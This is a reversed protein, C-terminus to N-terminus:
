DENPKMIFIAPSPDDIDQCTCISKLTVLRHLRDSESVKENAEWNGADLMRCFFQFSMTAFPTAKAKYRFMNLIDFLRGTLNQEYRLEDPVEVYKSWAASTFYVPYRIGVEKSVTEPVKILSGDEVAEKTTYPSIVKFDEFM